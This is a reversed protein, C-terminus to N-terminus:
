AHKWGEALHDKLTTPHVHRLVGDKKVKILGEYKGEHAPEHGHEGATDSAKEPTKDKEPM